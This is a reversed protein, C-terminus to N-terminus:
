YYSTHRIEEADYVCTTKYGQKILYSNITQSVIKNDEVLLIHEMCDGIKRIQYVKVVIIGFLYSFLM